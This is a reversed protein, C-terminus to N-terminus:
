MINNGFNSVSLLYVTIVPPTIHRFAFATILNDFAEAFPHTEPYMEISEVSKGFAIATFCDLTFRALMNYIDVDNLRDKDENIKDIVQKTHEVTCEFMYSKLNRMSFM